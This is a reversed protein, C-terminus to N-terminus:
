RKGANVVEPHFLTTEEAGSVLRDAIEVGQMVSHDMNSVEYKWGGFRGRSYIAHKELEPLVKGLIGDRAPTPVPYGFEAHMDFFHASAPDINLASIRRLDSLMRAHFDDAPAAQNGPLSIECLFSCQKGPNPVHAPSLLSFPTIRYFVCSNEPCYIWTKDSLGDPMRCPLAVGVARVQTHRLRTAERHLSPINCLGTLRTLPMTSILTDYHEESGDSFRAIRHVPDLGTLNTSLRIHKPPIRAAMANWIAGTGDRKPFQFTANPGWSVDDINERINRLVRQIDILPVRDGTWQFSMDWPETSWLKRNYPYMFHKAIGKGFVHLVWEEFNSVAPAATLRDKLGEICETMYEHPLHRINYQFPYPIFKGYEWVWSRREHCLFGNPLLREMLDDIYTYHSHAVHIAFDWLFGQNDLFTTALGGVYPNRDYVMFDTFGQEALRYAAGLGCPGAGIIIIRM